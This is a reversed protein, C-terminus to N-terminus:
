VAEPYITGEAPYGTGTIALYRLRRIYSRTVKWAEKRQDKTVAGFARAGTNKKAIHQMLDITKRRYFSPYGHDHLGLVREYGERTSADPETFAMAFPMVRARAYDPTRKKGNGFLEQMDPPLTSFPPLLSMFEDPQSGKYGRKDHPRVSRHTRVLKEDAPMYHWLRIREPTTTAIEYLIKACGADDPKSLDHDKLYNK